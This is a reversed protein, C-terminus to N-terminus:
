AFVVKLLMTIHIFHLFFYNYFNVHTRKSRENVFEGFDKRIYTQQFVEDIHVSCVFKMAKFFLM